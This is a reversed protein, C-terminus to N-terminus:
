VSNLLSVELNNIWLEVVFDITTCLNDGVSFSELEHTFGLREDLLFPISVNSNFILLKNSLIFLEM